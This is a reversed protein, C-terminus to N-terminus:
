IGAAAGDAVFIGRTSPWSYIITHTAPVGESPGTTDPVLTYTTDLVPPVYKDPLVEIAACVDIRRTYEVWAAGPPAQISIYSLRLYKDRNAFLRIVPSQM